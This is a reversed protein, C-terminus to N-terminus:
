QVSVTQSLSGVPYRKYTFQFSVIDKEKDKNYLVNVEKIIGNNASNYSAIGNIVNTVISMMDTGIKPEEIVPLEKGFM